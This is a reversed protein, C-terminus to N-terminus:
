KETFERKFTVRSAGFQAGWYTKGGEIQFCTNLPKFGVGAGARFGYKLGSSISAIYVEGGERDFKKRNATMCFFKGVWYPNIGTLDNNAFSKVVLYKKTIEDREQESKRFWDKDDWPHEFPTIPNAALGASFGDITASFARGRQDWCLYTLQTIGLGLAFDFEFRSDNTIAWCDLLKAEVPKTLFFSLFSLGLLAFQMRGLKFIKSKM